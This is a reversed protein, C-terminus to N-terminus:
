SNMEEEIEEVEIPISKMLDDVGRERIVV